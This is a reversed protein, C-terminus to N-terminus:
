EAEGVAESNSVSGFRKEGSFPNVFRREGALIVEIDIHENM